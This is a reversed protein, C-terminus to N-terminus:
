IIIPISKGEFEIEMSEYYDDDELHMEIGNAFEIVILKDNSVEWRNVEINMIDYFGPDPWKGAEWHAFLKGARLLNLQSYVSFAVKGLTFQLDGPGVRLQPIFEGMIPTLDLDKPIRNM